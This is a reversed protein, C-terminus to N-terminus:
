SLTVKNSNTLGKTLFFWKYIISYRLVMQIKFFYRHKQKM